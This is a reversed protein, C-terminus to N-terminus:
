VGNVCQLKGSIGQYSQFLNRALSFRARSVIVAIELFRLKKGL